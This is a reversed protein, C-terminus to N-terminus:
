PYMSVMEFRQIDGAFVASQQTQAIDNRCRPIPHDGSWSSTRSYPLRQTLAGTLNIELRNHITTPQQYNQGDVLPFPPPAGPRTKSTTLDCV